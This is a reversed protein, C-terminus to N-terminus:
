PNSKQAAEFKELCERLTAGDFIKRGYLRIISPEKGRAVPVCVKMENERLVRELRELGDDRRQQTLYYKMVRKVTEIESVYISFCNLEAMLNEAELRTVERSTTAPQQSTFSKCTCDRGICNMDGFGTVHEAREHGCECINAGVQLDAKPANSSVLATESANTVNAAQQTDCKDDGGKQLDNPQSTELVASLADNCIDVLMSRTSSAKAFDLGLSRIRNLAIDKRRIVGLLTDRETILNKVNENPNDQDPQNLAELQELLPKLDSWVVVNRGNSSVQLQYIREVIERVGSVKFHKEAKLREISERMSNIAPSIDDFLKQMDLQSRQKQWNLTFEIVKSVVQFPERDRKTGGITGYFSNICDGVESKEEVPLPPTPIVEKQAPCWHTFPITYVHTPDTHRKEVPYGVNWFWCPYDGDTPKRESLPIWKTENPTTM